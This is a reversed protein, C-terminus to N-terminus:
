DQGWDLGRDLGRALGGGRRERAWGRMRGCSVVAGLAELLLDRSLFTTEM